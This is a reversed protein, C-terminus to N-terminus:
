QSGHKGAEVTRFPNNYKDKRTRSKFKDMSQIRVNNSKQDFYHATLM